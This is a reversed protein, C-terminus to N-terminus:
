NLKSIQTFVAPDDVTFVLTENMENVPLVSMRAQRNKNVQPLAQINMESMYAANFDNSACCASTGM